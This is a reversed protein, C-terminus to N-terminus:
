DLLMKTLPNLIKSQIAGALERPALVEDVVYQRVSNRKLLDDRAVPIVFEFDM